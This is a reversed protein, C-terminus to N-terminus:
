ASKGFESGFASLFGTLDQRVWSTTTTGTLIGRYEHITTGQAGATVAVVLAMLTM